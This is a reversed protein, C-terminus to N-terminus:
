LPEDLLIRGDKRPAAQPPSGAPWGIAASAFIDEDDTMGIRKFIARIEPVSTLWHPQNSWCAALGLASAALLINEIAAACEAMSNEGNRPAVANILLPAHHIFQYDPTRARLIASKMVSGEVPERSSLEKKILSNLKELTEARRIVLFRTNQTNHGTPAYLACDLLTKLHEADIPRNEYFRISRRHLINEIVPNM